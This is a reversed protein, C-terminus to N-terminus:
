TLAGVRLGKEGIRVIQSRRPDITVVNAAVGGRHPTAGPDRRGGILVECLLHEVWGLIAGTNRHEDRMAAINRLVSILRYQKVSIASEVDRQRRHEAWRHERPQLHAANVRLGVQAAPALVALDPVFRARELALLVDEIVK